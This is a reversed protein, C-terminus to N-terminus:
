GGGGQAQRRLRQIRLRVEPLRADDPFRALVAEYGKLAAELEGGAEHLAAEELQAEPAYTSKPFQAGLRQYLLLAAAPDRKAQWRAQTLLSLDQLGGGAELQAWEQAAERGQRLRLQARAFLQLQDAKDQYREILGLLVLADNASPDAPDQRALEELQAAAEKFRGQFYQLEAQRLRTWRAAQSAQRRVQELCASAEDLREERLACEALLGWAAATWPGSGSRTLQELVQRAAATDGAALSTRGQAFLAASRERGGGFPWDGLEGTELYHQLGADLGWSSGAWALSLLWFFKM